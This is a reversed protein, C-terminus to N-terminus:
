FFDYLYNRVNFGVTKSIIVIFDYSVCCKYKPGDLNNEGVIDLLRLQCMTPIQALLNSTLGVKEDLIAYFIALMRDLTFAKPGLQTTLKIPKKSVTAKKKKKSGQKVFLRKDEKAPNYSALYAAVLMYKAYFPLEFSLALKTTSEIEQCLKTRQESDDASVRLYIVELNAKLVGSINRWLGQVDNKDIKGNKIPEVYKDFNIKAMYSLENFDRCCRFFVSLFLNLYNKYFGDEYGDPKYLFLVKMMEDFTYQSFHLKIPDLLGSKIYYKEWVIDSIFICCVKLETLEKLRLFAPLLNIDMDRLRECKDFVIVIPRPDNNVANKLNRIFDMINDCKQYVTFDNKSGMKHTSLDNLISEFIQKSSYSEICNVISVNYELYDLMSNIVLTKGTGTLGYAFISQPMEENKTGILSYLRRIVYERCVITGKLRQVCNEM